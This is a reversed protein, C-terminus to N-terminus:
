IIQEDEVNNELNSGLKKSLLEPEKNNILWIFYGLLAWPKCTVWHDQLPFNPFVYIAKRKRLNKNLDLNYATCM